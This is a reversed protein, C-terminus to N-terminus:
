SSPPSAYRDLKASSLLVKNFAKSEKRRIAGILYQIRGFNELLERGSETLKYLRRNNDEIPSILNQEILFELIERCNTWSLNCKYMINTPKNVGKGIVRLVELCLELKSRKGVM